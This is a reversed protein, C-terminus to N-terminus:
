PAQLSHVTGQQQNHSCPLVSFCPPTCENSVGLHPPPFLERLAYVEVPWPVTLVALSIMKLADTGGKHQIETNRPQMETAFKQFLCRPPAGHATCFTPQKGGGTAMPGLTM